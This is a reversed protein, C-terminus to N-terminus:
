SKVWKSLAPAPISHMHLHISRGTAASDMFRSDSARESVPGMLVINKNKLFKHNFTIFPPGFGTKLSNM